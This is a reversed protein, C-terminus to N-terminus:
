TLNDADAFRRFFRIGGGDTDLVQIDVFRDPILDDFKVELLMPFSQYGSFFGSPRFESLFCRPDSGYCYLGLHRTLGWVCWEGEPHSSRISRMWTSPKRSVKRVVIWRFSLVMLVRDSNKRRSNTSAIKRPTFMACRRHSGTPTRNISGAIDPTM